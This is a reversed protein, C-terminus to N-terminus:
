HALQSVGLQGALQALEDGSAPICPLLRDVRRRVWAPADDDAVAHEPGIALLRRWEAHREADYASLAQLSTGNQALAACTRCLTAAERLGVNMSQAGVPSTLHAADGALWVHGRGFNRALRYEFRVATRWHIEGIRASFWPARQAIMLELHERTLYPSPADSSQAFMRDKIRSDDGALGDTLQFTWRVKGDPLPWLVNTTTDDLVVCAEDPLEGEADLEFVVFDDARRVSDFRIGLQTRALSDHGDAALVWHPAITRSREVVTETHAVDYGVDLSTLTDITARVSEGSLSLQALRHRWEIEVGHRALEEALLGELEVQALVAVFSFRTNL